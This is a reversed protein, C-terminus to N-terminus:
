KNESSNESKLTEVLIQMQASVSRRQKKSYERIFEDLEIPMTISLRTMKTEQNVEKM